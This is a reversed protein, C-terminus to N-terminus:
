SLFLIVCRLLLLKLTVAGCGFKPALVVDPNDEESLPCVLECSSDCVPVESPFRSLADANSHSKGPRHVVTYQFEALQELWRARRGSPEKSSTLSQIAKHDTRLVFCQGLLYCRFHQVFTIVSLLERDYTSYNRQSKTLIKSSFAIVREQGGQVQSLVGGMGVQSADTDLIFTGADESFDPYALIPASTLRSKLYRFAATCAPTWVFSTGKKTLGYLPAVIHSFGKVFRRYYGALGLFQQVETVNRPTPWDRVKAIKEQCTAVGDGSVKFGLFETESRLFKCKPLKLKLNAERLKTFVRRLMALHDSVSSSAVVIDDFFVRCVPSSSSLLVDRLVQEMVRQFTAPGNCVGMPLVTFEYLGLPCSFASKCSDQEDLAIQWYGSALDLTTFLSCGHLSDITDDIRPLPFADPKTVANMKRYDVCLRTSGDKKSVLVIPSAWASCSERIIGKALLDDLLSKLIVRRYYPLRRAAQKIPPSTGTDITHPFVSCYGLNEGEWWFVDSFETLLSMLMDRDDSSLHDHLAFIDELQSEWSVSSSKVTDVGCCPVDLSGDSTVTCSSAVAINTNVFLKVSDTGRNIVPLVFPSGTQLESLVVDGVELLPFRTLFNDCSHVLIDTGWVGSLCECSVYCCHHGPIVVSEALSVRAEQVPRAGTSGGEFKLSFTGGSFDLIARSKELFDKGLIVSPAIDPSVYFSHASFSHGAVSVSCTVAGTISLPAHNVAFLSLDSQQTIDVSLTQVLSANIISVASGSDILASVPVTGVVCQISCSTESSFSVPCLFGNSTVGSEVVTVPAQEEADTM